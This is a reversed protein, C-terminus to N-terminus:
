ERWLIAGLKLLLEYGANVLIFSFFVVASIGKGFSESRVRMDNFTCDGM